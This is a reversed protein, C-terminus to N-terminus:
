VSRKGEMLVQRLIKDAVDLSNVSYQGANLADRIPKVRDMRIDSASKAVEGANSIARAGSSLNVDDRRAGATRNASQNKAPPVRGGSIRDLKSVNVGKIKM